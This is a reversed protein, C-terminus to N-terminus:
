AACAINFHAAIFDAAAKVRDFRDTNARQIQGVRIGIEDDFLMGRVLMHLHEQYATNFPPKGEAAEFTIAPPVLIVLDFHKQTLAMAKEVYQVTTERSLEDGAPATADALLYAAADIPTRDCIYGGSEGLFQTVMATLQQNQMAIGTDLRNDTAMDFGHLEAVRSAQSSLMPLNFMRSLARALTTKGTRHAGAMGIRM